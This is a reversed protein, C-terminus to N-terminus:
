GASSGGGGFGGGSSGGGFGGSSFSSHFGSGGSGSSPTSSLMLTTGMSRMSSTLSTTSFTGSGEYWDPSTTLIGAFLAAWKDALGLAMAYPLNEQFNELTMSEPEGAEATKLYEQFAMAQWYVRSGLATRRPMAHGIIWVVIGAPVTGVLLLWVYGLDTFFRLIFLAALPVLILLLAWHFYRRVTKEPDDYFYKGKKVEKRVGNLITLLRDGVRIDEEDVRDEDKKVFIGAMVAREYPLLDKTNKDKREFAFESSSSPDLEGENIIRLKGRVALDVVTAGIDEMKPQQHVLAAMVAPRMERPPEYAVGPSPGAYTDRGKWFWLGFMLLAAALFIGLAILLILWMTSTRYPWPKRVTGKPLSVDVTFTTYPYINEAEWWLVNGDRGSGHTGGTPDMYYDLSEVARMDAGEPLTVTMRSHKIPVARDLSVMNWYFRDYDDAYIIAGKMRYEIIWGMQEDQAQFHITILEGRNYSDAEWKSGDYPTGDLNYVEVDKVRVKGYTRGEDFGAMQTSIDRTIFSFSGTFNVVQTERVTFSGDEHITVDSDFREFEWSKVPTQAQGAALPVLCLLVAALVLFIYAGRGSHM